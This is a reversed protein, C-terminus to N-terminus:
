GQECYEFDGCKLVGDCPDGADELYPHFINKTQALFVFASFILLKKLFSTDEIRKLTFSTAKM